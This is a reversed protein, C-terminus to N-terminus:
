SRVDDQDEYDESSQPDLEWRRQDRQELIDNTRLFSRDDMELGVAAGLEDIIDQDPTAVTGGVAEDGVADAQEYNADVDGGTLSSDAADDQPTRRRSYRGARDTPRGQLGTGYSATLEQPRDDIIEQELDDDIIGDGDADFTDDTEDAPIADFAAEDLDIEEMGLEAELDEFEDLEPEIDEEPGLIERFEREAAQRIATYDAEPKSRNPRNTKRAM